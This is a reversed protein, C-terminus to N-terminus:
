TEGEDLLVRRYLEDSLRFGAMDRLSDILPKVARIQGKRKAEILIGVLGTYRLGLHCAVERGLHEDMLLLDAGIGIALAIAGAEGPDLEQQLAQELERNTAAQTKIWNATEVEDAGPQGAGEVVVEQWVAEPVILEGYLERLIGLKGIRALNILPSANSVIKM